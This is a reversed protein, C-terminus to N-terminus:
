IAEYEQINKITDIRKQTNLWDELQENENGFFDLISFNVTGGREELQKLVQFNEETKEIQCSIELIEMKFQLLFNLPIQGDDDGFVSIEYFQEITLEDTIQSYAPLFPDDKAKNENAYYHLQASRLPSLSAMKQCCFSNNIQIYLKM